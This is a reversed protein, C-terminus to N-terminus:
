NKQRTKETKNKKTHKQTLLTSAEPIISILYSM